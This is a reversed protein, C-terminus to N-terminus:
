SPPRGTITEPLSGNARMKALGRNFIDLIERGRPNDRAVILHLSSESAAPGPVTVLKERESVTARRADAIRDDEVMFDARDAIIMSLCSRQQTPTVRQVDGQQILLNLWAPLGYGVAACVRRGKMWGTAMAARENGIAVVLHQRVITIPDSFLVERARQETRIYPFTADFRHALLGEYGRRWPEVSIDATIGATTFIERVLRTVPGGGPLTDDVYPAYDSGTVLKLPTPEAGASLFPFLVALLLTGARRM